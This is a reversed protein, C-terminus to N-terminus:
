LEFVFQEIVDLEFLLVKVGMRQSYFMDVGRSLEWGWDGSMIEDGSEKMIELIIKRLWINAYIQM